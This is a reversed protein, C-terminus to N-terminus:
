TRKGNVSRWIKGRNLVAELGEYNVDEIINNNAEIPAIVPIRPHESSTLYATLLETRFEQYNELNEKKLWNMFNKACDEKKISGPTQNIFYDLELQVRNVLAFNAECLCDYMKQSFKVNGLAVNGPLLDSLM